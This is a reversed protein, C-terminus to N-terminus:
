GLLLFRQFFWFAALSGVIYGSGVQTRNSAPDFTEHSARVALWVVFLLAGVFFLQGAEVGINFAFLALLTDNIPLGLEALVSAFGLGHLLGFVSSVAVPFRWSLSNRNQRVLEAAVFVISLAILAETPGVAPTILELAALALTISHAITFGTIALLIRRWTFALWIVCVLFLLHDYGGLIHEVGLMGYEPFISRESIGLPIEITTVGPGAHIFRAPFNTFEIHVISSLSPNVRPYDINVQRPLQGAACRILRQGYLGEPRSGSIICDPRLEIVPISFRDLTPPLKWALEFSDSSMQTVEIYVPRGDHANAPQLLVILVGILAVRTCNAIM